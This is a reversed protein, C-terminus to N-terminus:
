AAPRRAAPRCRVRARSSCSSGALASRRSGNPARIAVSVARAVRRVVGKPGPGVYASSPRVLRGERQQEMAHALWGAARAVAFVPTFADRPLGVAVRCQDRYQAAAAGPGAEAPRLGCRCRARGRRRLRAALDRSRADRLPAGARLALNRRAPRGAPVGSAWVGGVARGRRVKARGLRRCRREGGGRRAHRRHAGTRRWALPGTFACYADLAASVLSAGSSAIVRATFASTDLGNDIVATFYAGLAEAMVPAVPRGHVMRLLDAASGRAPDPVLPAAGGRTRLLAGIAVPLTALNGGAHERRAPRRPCAERKRRAPAHAGPGTL